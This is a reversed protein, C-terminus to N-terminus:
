RPGGRPDGGGGARSPPSPAHGPRSGGFNNGGYVSPPSYGAGGGGYPPFGGGIEEALYAHPNHDPPPGPFPGHTELATFWLPVKRVKVRYWEPVGVARKSKSRPKDDVKPRSGFTGRTGKRPPRSSSDLADEPVSGLSSSSSNGPGSVALLNPNRAIAHNVIHQYKSYKEICRMYGCDTWAKTLGAVWPPPDGQLKLELVAFPFPKHDEQGQAPQSLGRSLFSDWFFQDALPANAGSGRQGLAEPPPMAFGVLPSDLTVRVENSSSLQFATRHVETVLLPRIRKGMVLRQVEQALALKEILAKRTKATKADVPPGTDEKSKSEVGGGEGPVGARLSPLQAVEAEDLEIMASKKGEFFGTLESNRIKFRRKVSKDGTWAEHHTKLEVFACESDKLHPPPQTDRPGGQLVAHDLQPRGYWRIRLLNAGEKLVVRDHYLPLNNNPCDFYLSTIAGPTMSYADLNEFFDITPPPTPTHLELIPLHRLLMAKVEAVKHPHVWFKNTSREFSAPPNWPVKPVEAEKCAWYVRSFHVLLPHVIRRSLFIFQEGHIVDFWLTSQGTRKRYKKVAKRVANSNLDTFADFVTIEKSVQNSMRELTAGAPTNEELQTILQLAKGLIVRAFENVKELESLVLAAFGEETEGRAGGRKLRSIYSKM